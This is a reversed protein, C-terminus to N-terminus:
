TKTGAWVLQKRDELELWVELNTPVYGRAKDIRELVVRPKVGMRGRVSYAPQWSDNVYVAPLSNWWLLWERLPMIDVGRSTAYKRTRTWKGRLSKTYARSRALAGEHNKHWQERYKKRRTNYHKSGKVAPKRKKAMQVRTFRSLKCTELRPKSFAAVYTAPQMAQPAPLAQLKSLISEIVDM